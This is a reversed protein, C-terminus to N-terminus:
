VGPCTLLVVTVTAASLRSLLKSDVLCAPAAGCKATATVGHHRPVLFSRKAGDGRLWAAVWYGPAFDFERVCWQVGHSVLNQYLPVWPM